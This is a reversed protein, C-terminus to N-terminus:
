GKRTRGAAGAKKLWVEKVYRVEEERSRIAGKLREDLIASKIEGYIPGPPIGLAELDRGSTEVPTEKLETIFRSIREKVRVDKTAAMMFLLTEINLPNLLHYLEVDDLREKELRAMVEGHIRKIEALMRRWRAALGVKGAMAETEDLSLSNQLASLFLVWRNCTEERFLLDYWDFVKGLERFLRETEADIRFGPHIFKLIDLEEMRRLARLPEEEELIIRLENFIRSPSVKNFFNHKVANKILTLSQKGIHFGLRQEFRVARFARTPDDIFSLSHLVRITKEKIDRIGGFYDILEGFGKRGLRVAMSNITFDRRYLDMKLPGAEVTPLAAPKRYFEMRASAVDIKFGDPLVVVATGFKRHSRVRGGFREALGEAFAIGDGEVVIDIDLNERGMVLDRVFGGVLYANIGMEDALTGAKELICLLWGPLRGRMVGKLSKRHVTKGLPAEERKRDYHLVRLIDTRTICGALKGDKLVPLFRQNEEIIIEQVKSLPTETDVISFDTTMFERVHHEELGYYTARGVDQRSILGVLRRGDMVPLVNINFKAMIEKTQKLKEDPTVTKVPSSMIDGASRVGRVKEEIVRMLTEEAEILTLGRIVASAAERHGGGGFAAAIEGADVEKLRSRAILYVKNEMRILAFLVGINNMDMMKHVLLAADDIYRESSAKTVVIDLGHLPHVVANSNLDNLLSVEDVTMERSISESVVRLDAGKSLLWAAALYDEQTTSPFSLFGTDEYIGLMMVTAEEPTVPVNREKLISVLITTTSGLPPTVELSGRIDDGTPPHHDYIHIDVGSKGILCALPGIRGKQRIDVLILRTVAGTDLQGLKLPSFDPISHKKLFERVSREMSGPFVVVADPYLKRAAVMSALTDFDANTHTTIVDMHSFIACLLRDYFDIQWLTVIKTLM